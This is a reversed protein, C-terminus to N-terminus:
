LAHLQYLHAQVPVRSFRFDELLGMTLSYIMSGYWVDSVPTDHMIFFSYPHHKNTYDTCPVEPHIMRWTIMTWVVFRPDPTGEIWAIHFTRCVDVKDVGFLRKMHPNGGDGQGTNFNRFHWLINIEM